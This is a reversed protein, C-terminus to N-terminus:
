ECVIGDGDGDRMYPYAPHDRRVPAIGHRRAEACSIRGNGNDDWDAVQGPRGATPYAERQGPATMEMETTSCQSLVQALANAEQQDISLRYRRKVAIIRGAYWCRNMAPLWEGADRDSKQNRNVNPGALTLNLLDQAFRTRTGRDAACLGSDHAEAAAVIHEIDTERRNTFWRGTYPGYLGGQQRAIEAEISQPYRYDRSREYPSCRYEPRIELGQFQGQGEAAPQAMWALGIALIAGIYRPRSTNRRTTKLHGRTREEM